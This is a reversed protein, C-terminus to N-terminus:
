AAWRIISAMYFLFGVMQRREQEPLPTIIPPDPIQQDNSQYLRSHNFFAIYENVVQRIHVESFFLIHDLNEAM